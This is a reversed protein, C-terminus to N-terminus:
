VLDAQVPNHDSLAGGDLVECRAIAARWALLHDIDQSKSSTGVPRPRTHLSGAKPVGLVFGAGFAATVAAADANFDGGIAVPLARARALAAVETMQAIARDGFTIHTSVVVVGNQLEVALYGKGHDSPFAASSVVKGPRTSVVVLHETLDQLPTTGHKPKPVRPYTFDFVHPARLARLQDGSVEQLCIADCRALLKEVQRAIAAIRDPEPLDSPNENWNDAHVKHLVNWSAVIM